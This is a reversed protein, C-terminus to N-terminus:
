LLLRVPLPLIGTVPRASWGPALFTPRWAPQDTGTARLCFVQLRLLLELWRLAKSSWSWLVWKSGFIGFRLAM